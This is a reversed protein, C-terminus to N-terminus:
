WCTEPERKGANDLSIDGCSDEKQGGQPEALLDYTTAGEVPVGSFKYFDTNALVDGVGSCKGYNNNATYCRELISAAEMLTAQADARRADRVYNQYSPIAISALIGIIAVAIM